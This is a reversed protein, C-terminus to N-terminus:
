KKEKLKLVAKEIRNLRTEEKKADCIWTIYERKHTYSLEDFLKELKERKLVKRFDAPVEITREENDEVLWIDIEDGVDKKIKERIAKLVLIMHKPSGYKVMTGRYPEGDITARFPVRGKGFEKKVDLPFEVFAGGGDGKQLKAKFRYEKSSM